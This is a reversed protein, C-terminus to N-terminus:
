LWKTIDEGETTALLLDEEDYVNSSTSTFDNQFWEVRIPYTNGGRSETVTGIVGPPLQTPRQGYFYSTPSIVVKDGVRLAM